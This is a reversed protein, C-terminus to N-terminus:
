NAPKNKITERDLAKIIDNKSLELLGVILPVDGDISRTVRMSSRNKLIVMISFTTVNGNRAEILAKELDEIIQNKHNEMIKFLNDRESLENIVTKKASVKRKVPNVLVTTTKPKKDKSM